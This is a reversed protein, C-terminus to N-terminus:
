EDDAHAVLLFLAAMMFTLVLVPIGVAKFIMRRERRRGLEMLERGSSAAFLEHRSAAM